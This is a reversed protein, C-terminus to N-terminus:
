EHDAIEKVSKGRKNAVWEASHMQQLGKVTARVVNIPNNSGLSKAVVNEVGVMEFIARMANGAIVGTGVPAPQIMVRTAGHRAVVKYQVTSGNLEVHVMSRRADEIAKKIAAPVERAKGYGFGVRGKQDGVVMLAAFGFVRGGKVVKATRNVYVLKEQIGDSVTKEDINAM